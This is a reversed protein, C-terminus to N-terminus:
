IELEDQPPFQRAGHIVGLIHIESDVIRYIVRFSYVCIERLDDRQYEPVIAGSRPYEILRDPSQLLKESVIDAYVPSQSAVYEWLSLLDTTAKETWRVKM